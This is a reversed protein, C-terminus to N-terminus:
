GMTPEPDSWIEMPQLLTLEFEEVLQSMASHLECQIILSATGVSALPHPEKLIEKTYRIPMDVSAYIEEVGIKPGLVDIYGYWGIRRKRIKTYDDLIIFQRYYQGRANIEVLKQRVQEIFCYVTKAIIGSKTM